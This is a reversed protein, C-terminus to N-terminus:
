LKVCLSRQTEMCPCGQYVDSSLPETESPSDLVMHSFSGLEAAQQSQFMAEKNLYIEMLKRIQTTEKV